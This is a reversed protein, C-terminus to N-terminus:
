NYNWNNFFYKINTKTKFYNEINTKKDIDKCYINLTLEKINELDNEELKLRKQIITANQRDILYDIPLFFNKCFDYYSFNKEFFKEFADFDKLNLKYVEDEKFPLYKINLIAKFKSIIYFVLSICTLVFVIGLFIFTFMFLYFMFGSLFSIFIKYIGVIKNYYEFVDNGCYVYFNNKSAICNGILFMSLFFGLIIFLMKNQNILEKFINRKRELNQM